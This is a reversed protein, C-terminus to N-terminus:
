FREELFRTYLRDIVLELEGLTNMRLFIEEQLIDAENLGDDQHPLIESQFNNKIKVQTFSFDVAHIMFSVSLEGLSVVLSLAEVLHGNRLSAFVEHSSELIPCTISTKQEKHSLLSTIVRQGLVMSVDIKPIINRTYSVLEASSDSDVLLLLWTLFEYGLFNAQERVKANENFTNVM